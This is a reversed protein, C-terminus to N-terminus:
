LPDNQLNNIESEYHQNGIVLQQAHLHLRDAQEGYLPDGLIPNGLGQPHACHLRLQHTRGTIPTLQLRAHGCENGVVRYHTVAEKGYQWDVRQRPRDKLDPMLPLSIVGEQGEPMSHQLLATYVKHITRSLFMTQLRHYAEDTLAVVMLGSTDMDLRHVIMPGQAQPYRQRMVSYVSPRGPENGPVSLLGAPKDVVVYDAEEAVVKLGDALAEDQLRSREAAVDLGQLMHGLIPHCRSRCPAYFTGDTRVEGQPSAGMWFEGLCLPRLGHLYAYQLLKPACCDGAGGPPTTQRFINLLTRRVGRADLFEYQEHLWRQLAKSRNAREQRLVEVQQILPHQRMAEEAEQLAKRMRRLEAKMFQSERILAPEEQKLEGPSLTQRLTERRAKAALCEQEYASCRQRAEHLHMSDTAVYQQWADAKEEVEKNLATIAAEEKQFYCGPAMLDFVPPVFDDQRTHGGLTGSFAALYGREGYGTEVVLVGMMKGEMAEDWLTPRKRLRQRLDAAALRCLPHVEGTFPFPFSTPSAIDHAELPLPRLNRM